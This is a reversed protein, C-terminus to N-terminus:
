IQLRSLEQSQGTSQPSAAIGTNDRLYHLTATKGMEGPFPRTPDAHNVTAKKCELAEYRIQVSLQSLIAAIIADPLGASRGQRELVDFVIQMVLRSVFSQAADGAQQFALFRRVFMPWKVTLWQFLCALARLQSAGVARTKNMGYRSKDHHRRQM